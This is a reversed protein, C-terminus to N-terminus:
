GKTRRGSTCGPACPPQILPRCSGDFHKYNERIRMRWRSLLLSGRSYEERRDCHYQSTNRARCPSTFAHGRAKRARRGCGAAMGIFSGSSTDLDARTRDNAYTYTVNLDTNWKERIYGIRGSISDTVTFPTEDVSGDGFEVRAQLREGTHEGRLLFSRLDPGKEVSGAGLPKDQEVYAPSAEFSFANAGEFNKTHRARFPL